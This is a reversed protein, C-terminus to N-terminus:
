GAHGRVCAAGEEGRSGRAVEVLVPVGLDHRGVVLALDVGPVAGAVQLPLDLRVRVVGALRERGEDVHAVALPRSRLVAEEARRHDRVEVAVAPGLDDGGAHVAVHVRPM